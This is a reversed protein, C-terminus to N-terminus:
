WCAASPGIIPLLFGLSRSITGFVAFPGAFGTQPVHRHSEPLALLPEEGNYALLRCIDPSNSAVMNLVPLVILQPILQPPFSFFCSFSQCTIGRSQFPLMSFVTLLISTIIIAPVRCSCRHHWHMCIRTGSVWYHGKRCTWAGVSHNRAVDTVGPHEWRERGVVSWAQNNALEVRSGRGDTLVLPVMSTPRDSTDLFPPRPM